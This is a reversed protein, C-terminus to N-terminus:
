RDNMLNRAKEKLKELEEFEDKHFEGQESMIWPFMTKYVYKEAIELVGVADVKNNKIFNELKKDKVKKVEDLFIVFDSKPGGDESFTTLIGVPPIEYHMYHNRLFEIFGALPDNLFENKVKEQYKGDLAKNTSGYIKKIYRRSHDKFAGASALFNVFCRTAELMYKHKADKEDVSFTPTTGIAKKLHGFNIIMIKFSLELSYAKSDIEFGRSREIDDIIKQFEKPDKM